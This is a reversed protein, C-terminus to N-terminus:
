RKKDNPSAISSSRAAVQGADTTPSWVIMSMVHPSGVRDSMAECLTCGTENAVTAFSPAARLPIAVVERPM